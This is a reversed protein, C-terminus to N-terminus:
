YVERWSNEVDQGCFEIFGEGASACYGYTHIITLKPFNWEAVFFFVCRYSIKAKWVLSRRYVTLRTEAPSVRLAERRDYLHQTWVTTRPPARTWCFEDNWFCKPPSFNDDLHCKRGFILIGCLWGGAVPIVWFCEQPTWAICGVEPSQNGLCKFIMMKAVNRRGFIWWKLFKAEVTRSMRVVSNLTLCEM